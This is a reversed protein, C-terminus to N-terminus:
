ALKILENTIIEINEDTLYPHMPISFVRKCCDESIKFDGAKYGLNSFAAMLHMPKPYYIMSPIGKELLGKMIAARHAENKAKLTYQAWVSTYGNPIFPIEFYDKLIKTYKDAVENRKIIENPFINLKINLIAAQITDLRANLGIRVNDYKDSGKGHVRISRLLDAINDDDTFIAGGDGYCGLPKAPFFSTTSTLGFSCAKKNKYVGGFGQAADEIVELNYKKAIDYISDYDAPLGFLDVAIIAKPKLKGEAITKKIAEELSKVSINYTREDIDTFVPTAKVTAIVEATAFFTFTTTFVADGEGIGLAMLSMTIADTGNSCSICHKRQCFEALRSELSKVQPGMIFHAEGVAELIAKDIEDKNLQYQKKLDIFEM